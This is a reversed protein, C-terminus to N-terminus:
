KILIMKRIKSGEKTKLKYFYLGSGVKKGFDDDGNWVVSHNGKEFNNVALTKVKQGKVNYVNLEV